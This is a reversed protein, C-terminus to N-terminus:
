KQQQKRNLDGLEHSYDTELEHHDAFVKEDIMKKAKQIISQYRKKEM